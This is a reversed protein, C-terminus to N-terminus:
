GRLAGKIVGDIEKSREQAKTVCEMLLSRDLPAGGPKFVSCLRGSIADVVVSVASSVVCNEEETPDALLKTQEEFDLVGFTSSIPLRQLNLSTTEKGYMRVSEDGEKYQVTPLKANQLAAVIAALAADVPNGEYNLFVVDAYVVWVAKGEEICLDELNIVESKQLVNNVLESVSQVFPSPAGPRFNPSCLAPFDINPVLFGAKPNKASPLSVEAKVGCLCTTHGLRVMASGMASGISGTNIRMTRFKDLSRGDTRISKSIFRRHFEVPHVKQFTDPDLVFGGEDGAIDM